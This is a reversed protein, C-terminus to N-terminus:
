PHPCAVGNAKAVAANAKDWMAARRAQARKSSRGSDGSNWMDMFLGLAELLEPAALVLASNGHAEDSEPISGCPLSVGIVRIHNNRSDLIEGYKGRKWPGPTYKM